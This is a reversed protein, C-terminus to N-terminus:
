GQSAQFHTKVQLVVQEISQGDTNIIIADEAPKMPAVVRSADYADRKRMAELIEAYTAQSGRLQLEEFRRRAREEVSAVLYIKLEADPFVVTGIDRGVIVAAGREGIRRQQETMARRVGPYASVKSVNAEVEPLRLQWTVDQGDMSVDYMRGDQLSPPQVDIHIREAIETVLGEDDVNHLTEMAAYTVARYMVGTDFYLYNLCQALREGVTTKGSAAPGDLAIIKPFPTM